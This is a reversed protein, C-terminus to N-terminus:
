KGSEVPKFVAQLQEVLTLQWQWVKQNSPLVQNFTIVPINANKALAVLHRDRDSQDQSATLVFRIKNNHIRETLKDFDENSISEINSIDSTYNLQTMFVQQANNTAIYHVNKEQKLTEIGDSLTKTQDTLKQSNNIYNNRNRPDLDSLLDSLRAITKLIIEPSLWYNAYAQNKVVDSAVLLKSHLKLNRRQTLLQSQHSDTVLVEANKFITKENNQTLGGSLLSVHGSTTVVAQAIQQYAVNDTVIQVPVHYSPRTTVTMKMGILFIGIPILSITLIAYFVQKKM